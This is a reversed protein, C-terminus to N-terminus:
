PGRQSAVHLLRSRGALAEDPTAPAIGLLTRLMQLKELDWLQTGSREGKKKTPLTGRCFYVVPFLQYGSESREVPPGLGTELISLFKMPTLSAM